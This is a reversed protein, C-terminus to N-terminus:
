NRKVEVVRDNGDFDKIVNEIRLGSEMFIEKLPSVYSPDIEFIAVGNKNLFRGLEGSIIRYHELGDPSGDLAEVPDWDKVERQLASIDCTKVYPPNVTILDFTIGEWNRVPDFYNGMYFNTIHQTSNLEANRNALEVAARSIDTGYYQHNPNDLALAILIAGSGTALDLVRAKQDINFEQLYFLARDVLIETEIRPIFVGKECILLCNYFGVLGTILQLPEGSLRREVLKDLQHSQNEDLDLNMAPHIRNPSRDLVKAALARAEAFYNQIGGTKLRTSVDFLIDRFAKTM